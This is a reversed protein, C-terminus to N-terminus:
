FSLKRVYSSVHKRTDPHFVLSDYVCVTKLGLFGHAVLVWHEANPDHVIQLWRGDEVQSPFALIAGLTCCLLGGIDPFQKKILLMAMNIHGSTLYSSTSIPELSDIFLREQRNSPPASSLLLQSSSVRKRKHAKKLQASSLLL